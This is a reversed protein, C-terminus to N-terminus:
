VAKGLQAPFLEALAEDLAECLDMARGIEAARDNGADTDPLSEQACELTRHLLRLNADNWHPM